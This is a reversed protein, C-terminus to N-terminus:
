GSAGATSATAAASSDERKWLIVVLWVVFVRMELPLEEPVDVIWERNFFGKRRVSGVLGIGDRSLVFASRWASEKKLEYRNGGHEFVFRDKWASQKEAM